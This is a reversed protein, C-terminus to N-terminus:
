GGFLRPAGSVYERDWTIHESAHLEGEVKSWTTHRYGSFSVGDDSLLQLVEVSGSQPAELPVAIRWSGGGYYAVAYETQARGSFAFSRAFSRWEEADPSGGSFPLTALADFARTTLSVAAQKAEGILRGSLRPVSAMAPMAGLAAIMLLCLVKKM